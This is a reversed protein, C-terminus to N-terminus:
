NALWPLLGNHRLAVLLASALALLLLSLGVWPRLRKSFILSALTLIGALAMVFIEAVLKSTM